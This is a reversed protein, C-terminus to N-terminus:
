AKGGCLHAVSPPFHWQGCSVCEHLLNGGLSLDTRWTTAYKAGCSQCRSPHWLNKRRLLVEPQKTMM